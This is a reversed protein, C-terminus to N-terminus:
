ADGFRGTGSGPQEFRGSGTDPQQFRGSGTQPSQFRGSSFTGTQFRGSGTGPQEFRGAGLRRGYVTTDIGIWNTQLWVFWGDWMAAPILWVPESAPQYWELKPLFYRSPEIIHEFDGEDVPVGLMRVPETAPMWWGFEALPPAAIDLLPPELMSKYLTTQEFVIAYTHQAFAFEEIDVAFPFVYLGSPPRELEGAPESAPAYWGFDALAGLAAEQFPPLAGEAAAWDRNLPPESAPMWWGFEALAAAAEQYPPYASEAQPLLPALDPIEWRYVFADPHVEEDRGILEAFYGGEDIARAVDWLPESAPAYWKDLTIDEPIVDQFPPLVGEGLPLLDLPAPMQWQIAWADAHEVEARGIWDLAFFGEGVPRPVNWVPEETRRMWADPHSEEPRMEPTLVLTFTGERPETSAIQWVPESAPQYWKDLTIEEPEVTPAGLVLFLFSSVLAAHSHPMERVPESMQRAFADPHPAEEGPQSVPETFSKYLIRPASM